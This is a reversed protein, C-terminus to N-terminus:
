RERLARTGRPLPDGRRAALADELYADYKTTMTPVVGRPMDTPALRDLVCEYAAAALADAVDNTGRTGDTFTDPHDVKDKDTKFVLEGLEKMLYIHQPCAIKRDHMVRSLVRYPVPSRETSRIGADIGFTKLAQISGASNWSDYTVRRIWFGNRKLWIIFEEIKDFDVDEGSDDTVLRMAFDVELQKDVVEEQTGQVEDGRQITFESPHLMVIGVADKNRALDVHVYRPAQPHRYPIRRSLHVACALDLDFLETLKIPSRIPMAITESRFYRPLNEGAIFMETIVRKRPFFHVTAATSIGAVDQIAGNIGDVFPKYHEVPVDIIKGDLRAEEYQSLSPHVRICRNKEFIVEDLIQPDHTADGLLVRFTTGCYRIKDDKLFEWIPGEVIHVGPLGRVKLIRQDLFDTEMKKSSTFICLGPVDRPGIGSKFRSELRRSVSSALEHARKATAKGRGFFNVEDLAAGFLDKGISHLSSSGTIVKIAKQPWEIFDTGFPRRKFMETFYPSKDVIQDRLKYFGVDEAHELTLSYIGFVIQSKTSLGYYRAPDRLCSLRYIKYALLLMAILSKGSGIPGTMIIEYIGNAPDACKLLHGWWARFVDRGIHGAYDPQTFFVDPEVPVRDYDVSYLAELKSIDGGDLSEVLDLVFQREAPSLEQFLDIDGKDLSDMVTGLADETFGVPPSSRWPTSKQTSSKKGNTPM